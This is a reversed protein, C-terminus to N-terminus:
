AKKRPGPKQPRLTRNTLSELEDMFSDNGCPRGTRTKERLIELQDDPDTLFSKWDTIESLLDSYKGAHKRSGLLPDNEVLGM